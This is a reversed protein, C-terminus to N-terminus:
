KIPLRVPLDDPANNIAALLIDGVAESVPIQIQKGIESRVRPAFIVTSSLMIAIFNNNQAASLNRMKQAGVDTFTITVSLRGDPGTNEVASLIDSANLSVLPSVWLANSGYETRVWGHVVRDSAAHVSFENRAQRAQLVTVMLLVCLAFTVLRYM